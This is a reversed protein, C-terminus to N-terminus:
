ASELMRQIQADLDRAVTGVPVITRGANRIVVVLNARAFTIMTNALQFAVDGVANKETKREIVGSQMNGLAELLINHAGKVSASVFVDVSLLENINEGHSWMSHLVKSSGEETDKVRILKWGKLESGAFHFEKVTRRGSDSRGHWRKTDFRDELFEKQAAHMTM